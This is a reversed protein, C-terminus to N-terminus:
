SGEARQGRHRQVYREHETVSKLARSLEEELFDGM